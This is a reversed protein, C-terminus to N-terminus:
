KASFQLALNGAPRKNAKQKVREGNFHIFKECKECWLRVGFVRMGPPIKDNRICGTATDFWALATKCTPCTIPKIM